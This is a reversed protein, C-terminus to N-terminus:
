SPLIGKSVRPMTGAINKMLLKNSGGLANCMYMYQYEDSPKDLHTKMYKLVNYCYSLEINAVTRRKNIFYELYLLSARKMFDNLVRLMLNLTTEFRYRPWPSGPVNEHLSFPITKAWLADCIHNTSLVNYCPGWAAWQGRFYMVIVQFAYFLINNFM